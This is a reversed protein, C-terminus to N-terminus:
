QGDGNDDPEPKRAQGRDGSGMALPRRRVLRRVMVGTVLFISLGRSVTRMARRRLTMAVGAAGHGEVAAGDVCRRRSGDEMTPRDVCRRFYGDEGAPM